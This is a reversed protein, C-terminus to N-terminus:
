CVVRYYSLCVSESEALMSEKGKSKRKGDGGAGSTQGNQFGHSFREREGHIGQFKLPICAETPDFSKEPQQSQWSDISM